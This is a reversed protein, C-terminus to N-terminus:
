DSRIYRCESRGHSEGAAGAPAGLHRHRGGGWDVCEVDLRQRATELRGRGV